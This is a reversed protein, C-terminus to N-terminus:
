MGGMLRNLEEVHWRCRPLLDTRIFDQCEPNVKENKLADEYENIGHEEGQRLACLATAPGVVKAEGTVAAAFSGWPGSGESPEVGSKKVQERLLGAGHAHQERIKRLDALIHQDEFKQMAQDYTEVASLEGRLLSNLTNTDGTAQAQTTLESM